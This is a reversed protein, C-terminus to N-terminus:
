KCPKGKIEFPATEVKGNLRLNSYVATNIDGTGAAYFQQKLSVDRDLDLWLVVKSFNNRVGQDKSVLELKETKVSGIMEPGLDSITWSSELDKGSGGFGLTLFSETKGKSRTSDISNYCNAAGPTFDKLMGGKYSAIRANKGDVKIGAEVAAGDRIFYVSGDSRTHDDLLKLYDDKQFNAQASKFKASAADLKALTDKLNGPAPSPAAALLLAVFPAAILLNPM